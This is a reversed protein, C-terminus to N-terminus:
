NYPRVSRNLEVFHSIFAHDYAEANSPQYLLPLKFHTRITEIGGNGQGRSNNLSYAKWYPVLAVPPPLPLEDTPEQKIRQAIEVAESEARTKVGVDQRAAAKSVTERVKPDRKKRARPRTVKDTM